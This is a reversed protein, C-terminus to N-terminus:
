RYVADGGAEDKRRAAFVLRIEVLLGFEQREFAVAARVVHSLGREIEESAIEHGPLDDVHVSAPVKQLCVISRIRILSRSTRHMTPMLSSSLRSFCSTSM